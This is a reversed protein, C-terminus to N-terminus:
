APDGKLRFREMDQRTTVGYQKAWRPVGGRGAWEEGAPGRHTVSAVKRANEGKSSGPAKFRTFGFWVDGSVECATDRWAEGAGGATRFAPRGKSELVASALMVLAELDEISMAESTM